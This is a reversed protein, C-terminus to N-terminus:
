DQIVQVTECPALSFPTGSRIQATGQARTLRGSVPSPVNVATKKPNFYLWVDKAGTRRIALTLEGSPATLREIIAPEGSPAISVGYSSSGNPLEKFRVFIQNDSRETSEIQDGFLAISLDSSTFHLRDGGQTVPAGFCLAGMAEGPFSVKDPSTQLWGVLGDADAFWVEATEWGEAPPIKTEGHVARRPHFVTGSAIWGEGMVVSRREAEGSPIMFLSPTKGRFDTGPGLMVPLAATELYNRYRYTQAPDVLTAGVLTDGRPMRPMVVQWDGRRLLPGNMNGSLRIEDAGPPVPSITPDWFYMAVYSFWYPQAAKLREQALARAVPDKAVGAAIEVAHIPGGTGWAHKWWPSSSGEFPGNALADHAAGAAATLMRKAVPDRTLQYYRGLFTVEFGYYVSAMGSDHIYSFGGGPLQSAEALAVLKRALDGLKPEEYLRSALTLFAASQLMANPAYATWDVDPGRALSRTNNEFSLDVAPRAAALWGALREDSVKGSKKWLWLCELFIPGGWHTEPKQRMNDALSDTLALAREEVAPDGLRRSEPATAAWVIWFESDKAGDLARSVNNEAVMLYPNDTSLVVDPNGIWADEANCVASHSFALIGVAVAM